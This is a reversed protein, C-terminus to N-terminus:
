DKENRLIKLAQQMLHSHLYAEAEIEKNRDLIRPLIFQCLHVIEHALMVMSWDSFDFVKTSILYYLHREEKTDKHDVLRYLAAHPADKLLQECTSLGASWDWAKGQKLWGMIETYSFGICLMVKCPFIGCDLTEIYKGSAKVKVKSPKKPQSM